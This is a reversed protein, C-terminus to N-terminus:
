LLHQSKLTYILVCKVNQKQKKFTVVDPMKKASQLQAPTGCLIGIIITAITNVHCQINPLQKEYHNSDNGSCRELPM